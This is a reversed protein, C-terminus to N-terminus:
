VVSKRDPTLNPNTGVSRFGGSTSGRNSLDLGSVPPLAASHGYASDDANHVIKLDADRDPDIQYLKAIAARVAGASAVQPVVRCKTISRVYDVVTLNLPDATAIFLTKGDDSLAVPVIEYEEAVESPIKALAELAIGDNLNARTLGLQKSLARVFIDESVYKMRVLVDGLKGGWQKQEQLAAKLQVDTIVGAKVLLEGLRVRTTGTTGQKPTGTTM